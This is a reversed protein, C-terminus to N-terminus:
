ANFSCSIWRTKNSGELIQDCYRVAVQPVTVELEDHRIGAASKWAALKVAWQEEKVEYARMVHEFTTVYTLSSKM